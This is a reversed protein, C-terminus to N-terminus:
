TASYRKKAIVGEEHLVDINEHREGQIVRDRRPQM